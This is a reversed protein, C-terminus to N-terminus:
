CNFTYKLCVYRLFEKHEEDANVFIFKLLEAGTLMLYYCIVHAYESFSLEFRSRPAVASILWKGIQTYPQDIYRFLDDTRIVIRGQQTVGRRIDEYTHYLHLM